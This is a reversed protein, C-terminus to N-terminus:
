WCCCCCFCWVSVVVVFFIVFFVVFLLVVLEDGWMSTNAINWANNSHTWWIRSEFYWFFSVWRTPWRLLSAGGTTMVSTIFSWWWWEGLVVFWEGLVLLLLLLLLVFSDKSNFNSDKWHVMTLHIYVNYLLLLLLISKISGTDDVFLDCADDDLWKIIIICWWSMSITNVRFTAMWYEDDFEVVEAMVLIFVINYLIPVSTHIMVTPSADNLSSSLLWRVM